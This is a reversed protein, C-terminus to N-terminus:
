SAVLFFSLFLSALRHPQEIMSAHGGPLTVVTCDRMAAAIHEAEAHASVRDDQSHVVLTPVCIDGIWPRSDFRSLAVYQERFGQLADPEKRFRDRAIAHSAAARLSSSVFMGSLLRRYVEIPDSGKELSELMEDLHSRSEPGLSRFSNCLALAQVREPSRYAVVQAIAGGMSHGVLCFQDLDLHNALAIVDDAMEEISLSTNGFATDGSGRNESAVTRLQPEVIHQVRRWCNPRAQFGCILVLTKSGTGMVHHRPVFPRVPEM